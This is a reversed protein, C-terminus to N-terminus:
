RTRAHTHTHTHTHTNVIIPLSSKDETYRRSHVLVARIHLTSHQYAQHSHLAPWSGEKPPQVSEVPDHVVAPPPVTAGLIIYANSDQHLTTADSATAAHTM